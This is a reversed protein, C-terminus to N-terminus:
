ANLLNNLSRASIRIIQTQVREVLLPGFRPCALDPHRVFPTARNGRDSSSIPETVDVRGISKRVHGVLVADVRLDEGHAYAIRRDRV